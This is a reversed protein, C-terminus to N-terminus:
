HASTQQLPTTALMISYICCILRTDHEAMGRKKEKRKKEERRTEKRNM